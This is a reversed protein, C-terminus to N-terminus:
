LCDLMRYISNIQADAVSTTLWVCRVPVGREWAGEIVANRSKRTPYTNDLVVRRADGLLLADLRPTLDALSGGLADRNLREYGDTELTRAVETKGAGPMGMVIVVDGPADDATRREARPVRLLRGSFAADLSGLDDEDLNIALAHALSAAHPVSTAGPVPLVNAPFSM